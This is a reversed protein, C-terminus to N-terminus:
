RYRVKIAGWSTKKCSPAIDEGGTPPPPPPTPPPTPPPDGTFNDPSTGSDATTAPATNGTGDPLDATLEVTELACYEYLGGTDSPAALDVAPGPGCFIGSFVAVSLLFFLGLFGKM